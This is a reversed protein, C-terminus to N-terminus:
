ETLNIKHYTYWKLDQAPDRLSVNIRPNSRFFYIGAKLSYIPEPSRTSVEKQDASNEKFFM